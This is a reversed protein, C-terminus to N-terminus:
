YRKELYWAQCLVLDLSPLWSWLGLLPRFWRVIRGVFTPIHAYFFTSPSCFFPPPVPFLLYKFFSPLSPHYFYFFSPLSSLLSFDKMTANQPSCSRSGQGPISSPGQPIAQLALWQVVLFTGASKDFGPKLSSTLKIKQAGFDSCITVAAM